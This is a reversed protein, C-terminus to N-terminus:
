AGAAGSRSDVDYGGRQMGRQEGAGCGVASPEVARSESLSARTKTCTPLMGLFAPRCTEYLRLAGRDPTAVVLTPYSRARPGLTPRLRRRLARPSSRRPRHAGRDDPPVTAGLGLPTRFVVKSYVSFNWGAASGIATTEAVLPAPGSRPALLQTAALIVAPQLVRLGFGTRVFFPVTRRVNTSSRFAFRDNAFLSLALGFTTSVLSASLLGVRSATLLTFVVFGM